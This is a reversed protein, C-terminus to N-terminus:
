TRPRSRSGVAVLGAVSIVTPTLPIELVVVSDDVVTAERRAIAYGLLRVEVAVPGSPLDPMRFRGEVDTIGGYGLGPLAVQARPLGAGTDADRVTVELGGQGLVGAPVALLGIAVAVLVRRMSCRRRAQQLPRSCTRRGPRLTNWRDSASARGAPCGSPM